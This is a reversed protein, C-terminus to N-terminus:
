VGIDNKINQKIQHLLQIRQTLGIIKENKPGVVHQLSAKEDQLISIEHNISQVKKRLDKKSTESIPM